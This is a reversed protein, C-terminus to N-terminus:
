ENLFTEIDKNTILEMSDTRENLWQRLLGVNKLIKEKEEKKAQYIIEFIFDEFNTLDAPFEENTSGKINLALRKTEKKINEWNQKM